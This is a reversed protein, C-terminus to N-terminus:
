LQENDVIGVEVVVVHMYEVIHVNELGELMGYKLVEEKEL